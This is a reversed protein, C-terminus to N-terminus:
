NWVRRLEVCFFWEKEAGFDRLKVCKFGRLEM